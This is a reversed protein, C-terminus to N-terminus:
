LDPHKKGAKWIASTGGMDMSTGSCIMEDLDKLIKEAMTQQEEFKLRLMDSLSKM